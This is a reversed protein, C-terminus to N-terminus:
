WPFPLNLVQVVHSGDTAVVGTLSFSLLVANSTSIGTADPNVDVFVVDACSATSGPVAAAAVGYGSL